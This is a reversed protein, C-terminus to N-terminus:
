LIRESSLTARPSPADRLEPVLLYILVFAGGGLVGGAVFTAQAGIAEVLPGSVAFSVPMLGNWVLFDLSSVRGLLEGPVRKLQLSFWIVEGVQQVGRLVSFLAAALVSGVLGYGAVALYGLGFTAVMATVPRRPLGLQGVLLAVLLASAGTVGLLLGYDGAGGGWDNKIVYPLAVKLPGIVGLMAVSAALMPAWLWPEGRVYAVGERIDSSITAREREPTVPRSRILAVCGISGAFTAADALIAPGTGVTAVLVGGIAPGLCMWAAQLGSEQLATAAVVDEEPLLGKILPQMAPVHFAECVGITGAVLACHWVEIGGAVSLVGLAATALLAVADTAILIRRRDWRDVLAGAVPLSPVMGVSWALLVLSLSTASNSLELVQFAIAVLYIGDGVLSLMGGGFLLAYDRHRLPRLLRM